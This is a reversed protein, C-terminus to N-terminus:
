NSYRTQEERLIALYKKENNLKSQDQTIQTRHSFITTIALPNLGLFAFKTVIDDATTFNLSPIGYSFITSKSKSIKRNLEMIRRECRKIAYDKIDVKLSAYTGPIISYAETLSNDENGKASDYKNGLNEVASVNINMFKSLVEVFNKIKTRKMYESYDYIFLGDVIKQNVEMLNSFSELFQTTYDKSENNNKEFISNVNSEISSVINKLNINKLAGLASSKYDNWVTDGEKSAEAYANKLEEISKYTYTDEDYTSVISSNNSYVDDGDNKQLLEAEYKCVLDYEAQRKVTGRDSTSTDLKEKFFACIGKYDLTSLLSKITNLDDISGNPVFNRFFYSCIATSICKPHNALIIGQDKLYAILCSLYEYFMMQAEKKTINLSTSEGDKTFIKSNDTKYQVLVSQLGSTLPIANSLVSYIKKARYIKYVDTEGNNILEFPNLGAAALMASLLGNETDLSKFSDNFVANTGNRMEAQHNEDIECLSFDELYVGYGIYLEANVNTDHAEAVQLTYNTAPNADLVAAEKSKKYFSKTLKYVEKEIRRKINEKNKEVKEYKYKMLIKKYESLYAIFNNRNKKYNSINEKIANGYPGIWEAIVFQDYKMWLEPYSDANCVKWYMYYYVKKAEAKKITKTTTGANLHGAKIALEITQATLGYATDYTKSPRSGEQKVVLEFCRNFAASYKPTPSKTTETTKKNKKSM